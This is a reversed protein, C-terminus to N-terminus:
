KCYIIIRRMIRRIGMVAKNKETVAHVYHWIVDIIYCTDYQTTYQNCLITNSTIDRNDRQKGIIM